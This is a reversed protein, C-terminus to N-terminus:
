INPITEEQAITVKHKDLDKQKESIWNWFYIGHGQFGHRLDSLTM